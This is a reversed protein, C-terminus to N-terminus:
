YSTLSAMSEMNREQCCFSIIRLGRSATPHCAHSCHPCLCTRLILLGQVVRFGGLRPPACRRGPRGRRRRGAAACVHRRPLAGRACGGSVQRQSPLRQRPVRLRGPLALPVPACGDAGGAAGRVGESVRGRTHGAGKLSRHSSRDGSLFAVPVDSIHTSQTLLVSRLTVCVCAELHWVISVSRM